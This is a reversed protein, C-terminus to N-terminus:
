LGTSKDLKDHLLTRSEPSMEEELAVFQNLAKNLRTLARKIRRDLVSRGAGTSTRHLPELAQLEQQAQRTARNAALAQQILDTQEQSLEKGRPIDRGM